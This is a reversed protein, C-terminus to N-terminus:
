VRTSGAARAAFRDGSSFHSTTLAWHLWRIITLTSRSRRVRSDDSRVPGLTMAPEIGLCADESTTIWGESDRKRRSQEHCHSAPESLHEPRVKSCTPGWISFPWQSDNFAGPIPGTIRRIFFYQSNFHSSGRMIFMSADLAAFFHFASQFQASPMWQITWCMSVAPVTNPIYQKGGQSLITFWYGTIQIRSALQVGLNLRIAQLITFSLCWLCRWRLRLLIPTYSCSTAVYSVIIQFGFRGIDGLM